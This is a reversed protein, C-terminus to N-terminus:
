KRIIIEKKGKIVLPIEQAGKEPNESTIKVMGKLEYDTNYEKISSSDRDLVIFGKQEGEIDIAYNNEGIVLPENEPKTKIASSLKIKANSDSIDELEYENKAMLDVIIKLDSEKEWVDGEKVNEGNYFSNISNLKSKMSEGGFEESIIQKLKEFDDVEETNIMALGDKIIKDLGIIKDVKGNEGIYVEFSKDILSSFFTFLSNDPQGVLQSTYEIVNEENALLYFSIEDFKVNIKSNKNDDIDVVECNYKIEKKLKNFNLIEKINNDIEEESLNELSFRDGKELKLSMNVKKGVCATILSSIIVLEFVIILKRKM